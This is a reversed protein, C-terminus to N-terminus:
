FDTNDTNTNNISHVTDHEKFVRCEMSRKLNADSHLFEPTTFFLFSKNRGCMTVPKLIQM